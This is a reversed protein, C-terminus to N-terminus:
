YNPCLSLFMISFSAHNTESRLSESGKIYLRNLSVIDYLVVSMIVCFYTQNLQVTYFLFFLYRLLGLLLVHGGKVHLVSLHTNDSVRYRIWVSCIM